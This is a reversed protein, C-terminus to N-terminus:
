KLPRRAVIEAVPRKHAPDRSPGEYQHLIPWGEFYGALEGPRLRTATPAEGPHTIHVVTLVIGGPAVAGKVSDFLDRQLYYCMLILNWRSEGLPFEAQTLDAVRADVTLGRGEAKSRLATIAAESGDVAVVSWGHQALWLTDRGTGCALDLSRGPPLGQATEIVLPTPAAVFDETRERTRYRENWGAIDMNM